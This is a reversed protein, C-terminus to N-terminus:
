STCYIKNFRRSLKKTYFALYYATLMLCGFSFVFVMKNEQNRFYLFVPAGIASAAITLIIPLPNKLKYKSCIRPVILGASICYFFFMIIPFASSINSSAACFPMTCIICILFTSIYPHASFARFLGAAAYNGQVARKESIDKPSNM